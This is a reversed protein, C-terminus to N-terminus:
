LATGREFSDRIEKTYKDYFRGLKQNFQKNKENIYTVDPDDDGGRRDRRKKLRVEEAKQLDAVLKDVAARDPKNEVFDTSDATSYFTGNKDVAVLEGDNTEVIELGGSAAAREVAAMKERGYAELDPQLGRLQRKYVKRADQRYDQFAVDDRHRQKKEIRKDWKESEDVTWDWARKREFDEGAEETDAKLLNHSAFAHKRSLSSLLAPDTSLRQSEAATEKLNSDTATKARAKLAKFRALRDQAKSATDGAENTTDQETSDASAKALDGGSPSDSEDNPRAPESDQPVTEVPEDTHSKVAKSSSM